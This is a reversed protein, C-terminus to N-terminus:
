IAITGVLTDEKLMPVGLTTRAGGLDAYAVLRPDGELYPPMTRIDDIQVAQKTRRMEAHGSKPHIRFPMHQTAALAPPVNYVAAIRSGDGDDVELVGFEAGCLRTANALMAQFIPELEGPSSSIVSLVESTATQQELAESLERTRAQVEDFLRVNEIAIVAQDAFTEVLEIQKDTFPRVTSRTVVLVGIPVGERLLPVGLVTRNAGIRLVPSDYEPDALVDPIHVTKGELLTRGTITDRGPRIALRKLTQEHEASLALTAAVRYVDGSPRWINAREAECLRAASEVLTDLVTQLDFTSRSIVKLVDATATQQQLSESLDATRQRLESLLRTNEIAIVAQAAFNTLLEIQKDSFPRVEQRFIAIVGIAENEKVLPVAVLTRVGGLEVASVVRPDGEAYAQTAPLDAIHVTRKTRVAHDLNSGPTPRMLGRRTEAFAPPVNYKAVMRQGGEECLYLQGFNAQCLRAANELMAQFVPELEGPSSSIVNLVHSTATHQELAEAIQKRADALERTRKELQKKLEVLSNPGNSVRAAAKTGTSRLRTPSNAGKRALTVEDACDIRQEGWASSWTQM